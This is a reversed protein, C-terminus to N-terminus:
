ATSVDFKAAWAPISLCTGVLLATTLAYVHRVVSQNSM